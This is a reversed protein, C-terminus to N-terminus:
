DENEGWAALAYEGDESVWELTLGNAGDELSMAGRKILDAARSTAQAVTLGGHSYDHVENAEAVAEARTEGLGMLSESVEDIAVWHTYNCDGM